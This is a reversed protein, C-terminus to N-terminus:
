EGEGALEELAERVILDVDARVKARAKPPVTGAVLSPIGILRSKAAIIHNAWDALMEEAEVLEGRRVQNELATKDALEKDKRAREQVADLKTGGYIAAVVEHLWYMAARGDVSAPKLQADAIDNGLTRRDRNLWSSLAFISLPQRTNPTTTM